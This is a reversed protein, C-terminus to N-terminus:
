KIVVNRCMCLEIQNQCQVAFIPWLFAVFRLSSQTVQIHAEYRQSAGSLTACTQNHKVFQFVRSILGLFWDASGQKNETHSQVVAATQHSNIGNLFDATSLSRVPRTWWPKQWIVPEVTTTTSLLSATVWMYFLQFFFFFSWLDKKEMLSNAHLPPLSLTLNWSTFCNFSWCKAEILHMTEQECFRIKFMNRNLHLRKLLRWM